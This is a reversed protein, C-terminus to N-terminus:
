YMQERHLIRIYFYGLILSFFFEFRRFCVGAAYFGVAEIACLAAVMSVSVRLPIEARKLFDKM